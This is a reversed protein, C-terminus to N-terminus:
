EMNDMLYKGHSSKERESLKKDAEEYVKEIEIDQEGTIDSIDKILDKKVKEEYQTYVSFPVLGALYRINKTECSSKVERVQIGSFRTNTRVEVANLLKKLARENNAKYKKQEVASIMVAKVKSQIERSVESYLRTIDSADEIERSRDKNKRSFYECNNTFLVIKFDGIMDSKYVKKLKIKMNSEFDVSQNIGNKEHSTASGWGSLASYASTSALSSIIIGSMIKTLIKM